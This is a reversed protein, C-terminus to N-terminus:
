QLVEQESATRKPSGERIFFIVSAILATRESVPFMMNGFSYNLRNQRFFARKENVIMVFLQLSWFRALFINTNFFLEYYKYFM